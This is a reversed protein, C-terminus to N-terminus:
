ALVSYKEHCCLAFGAGSEAKPRKRGADGVGPIFVAPNVEYGTQEHIGSNGMYSGSVLWDSAIQRQISLNWQHIYAKKPNLPFNFYSQPPFSNSALTLPLPNGGPQGLWPDGLGGAPNPIRLTAGTPSTNQLDGYRDFNPYDFFLGYAARVVMLGDGKPDFALGLRPSFHM